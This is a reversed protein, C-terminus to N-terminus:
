GHRAPADILHPVTATSRELRERLWRAVDDLVRARDLDNLPEHRSELYVRLTKDACGLGRHLARSGAPDILPDDEGVLLLTPARVRGADAILRAGGEVMGFYLRASIREHRLVDRARSDMMVPDRTMWEHPYPAHLTVTPAVRGLLRGVGVKWAPVTAKLRLAPNSLVLGALNPGEEAFRLAVQGGNSHGLVFRPADPRERGCWDFVGRLDAVLEEYAFVVGRAGRSLGHGRFDFAVVGLGTQDRLQTAVHEYCGAHEGFGHAIILSGAGDAGPWVRARLPTGDASPITLEHDM